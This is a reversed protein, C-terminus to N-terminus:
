FHLFASDRTRTLILFLAKTTIYRPLLYKTTSCDCVVYADVDYGWLAKQGGTGVGPSLADNTLVVYIINSQVM